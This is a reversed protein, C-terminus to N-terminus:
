RVGQGDTKGPLAGDGGERTFYAHLLARYPFVPGPQLEGIISKAYLLAEEAFFLPMFIREDNIAVDIERFAKEAERADKAERFADLKKAVEESHYPFAGGELFVPATAFPSTTMSALALDYGGGRVREMYAGYDAGSFAVLETSFGAKGLDDAIQAALHAHDESPAYYLLRIEVLQEPRLLEAASAKDYRDQILRYMYHKPSVFGTTAVGRGMYASRILAEKDISRAVVERVTKSQLRGQPHAFLFYLKNSPYAAARYRENNFFRYYPKGMSVAAQVSGTELATRVLDKDEYVVGRIAEIGPSEEHYSAFRELRIEKKPEYSKIAYPGTGAPQESGIGHLIPFILYEALMPGPGACTFRVTMADIAEARLGFTGDFANQLMSWYIGKGLTRLHELSSVVDQATLRTGDHFAIGDRLTVTITRDQQEISHALIPVPRGSEDLGYLGEYILGSLYFWSMNETALPDLSSFPTLPVDIEGGEAVRFSYSEQPKPAQEKACGGMWVLLTAVCMAVLVRMRLGRRM